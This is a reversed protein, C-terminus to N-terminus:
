RYSCFLFLLQFGQCKRLFVKVFEIKYGWVLGTKECKQLFLSWGCGFPLWNVNRFQAKSVGSSPVQAKPVVPVQGPVGSLEGKLVVEEM